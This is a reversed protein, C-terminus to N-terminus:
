QPTTEKKPIAYKRGKVVLIGEAEGKLIKEVDGEIKGKELSSSGDDKILVCYAEGTQIWRQKLFDTVMMIFMGTLISILFTQLFMDFTDFFTSSNELIILRLNYYHTLLAAGVIFAISSGIISILFVAARYNM